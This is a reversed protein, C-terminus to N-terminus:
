IIIYLLIGLGTMVSLTLKVWIPLDDKGKANVEEEMLNCMERFEPDCCGM